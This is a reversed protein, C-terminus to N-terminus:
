VLRSPTCLPHSVLLTTLNIAVNSGYQGFHIVIAQGIGSSGGIVLVNKGRLGKM